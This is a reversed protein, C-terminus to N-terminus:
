PSYGSFLLSIKRQVLTTCLLWVLFAFFKGSRCQQCSPALSLDRSIENGIAPLLIGNLRVFTSLIMIFTLHHVASIITANSRAGQFYLSSSLAPSSSYATAARLYQLIFSAHWSNINLAPSKPTSRCLLINILYVREQLLPPLQLAYNRMSPSFITLTSPAM